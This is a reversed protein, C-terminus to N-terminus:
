WGRLVFFGGWLVGGREWVCKCMCVPEAELPQHQVAATLKAMIAGIALLLCGSHLPGRLSASVLPLLRHTGALAVLPERWM